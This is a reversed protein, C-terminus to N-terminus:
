VGPINDYGTSYHLISNANLELGLRTTEIAFPYTERQNYPGSGGFDVIGRNM